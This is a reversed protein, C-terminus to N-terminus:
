VPSGRSHPAPAATCRERQSSNKRDTSTVASVALTACTKAPRMRGSAGSSIARLTSGGYTGVRFLGPACTRWRNAPTAIRYILQLFAEQTVDEAQLRRTWVRLWTATSRSKATSAPIAARTGRHDPRVCLRMPVQDQADCRLHNRKM